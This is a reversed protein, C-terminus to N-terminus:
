PRHKREQFDPECFAERGAVYTAVAKGRLRRGEFPTNRSKSRFEEAKVTWERAPDILVMDAFSGARLTGGPLHFVRCPNLSLLRVADAPALAGGAVFETLVLGLVTELGILGCAGAAKDRVSHPAHDSAIADVRGACVAERLAQRDRASRLPPNVAPAAAGAYDEACLLLHHPTVEFTVAEARPADVGYREIAAVSRALSVHSFHIRCGAERALELDRAVYAAENAYPAGPSFGAYVGAALQKLARPSDECHPSLLVDHEAAARCVEGMLAADVVPDGDDSLAVVADERALAAVDNPEKGARDRTMAAKCYVRVAADRRAIDALRRVAEVTAIPPETNPECVVSTYGGAAAALSGTRITEKHTFGPERFHVHADVLGPWLWLGDGRVVTTDADPGASILEAVRAVRGARVLVDRRGDVGADPDVLRVNKLLLDM